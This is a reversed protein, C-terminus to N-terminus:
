QSAYKRAEQAQLALRINFFKKAMWILYEIEKNEAMIKAFDASAHNLPSLIVNRKQLLINLESIYGLYVKAVESSSIGLEDYKSLEKETVPYEVFEKESWHVQTQELNELM